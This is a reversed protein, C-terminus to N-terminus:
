AAGVDDKPGADRIDTSKVDDARLAVLAPTDVVLEAAAGTALAVRARAPEEDRELVVEHLDETGGRVPDSAQHLAELHLRDLMRPDRPRDGARLLLDLPHMEVGALVHDLVVIHHVLLALDRVLLPALDELARVRAAVDEAVDALDDRLADVLVALATMGLVPVELTQDLVQRRVQGERRARLNRVLRQLM